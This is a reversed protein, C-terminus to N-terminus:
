FRTGMKPRQLHHQPGVCAWAAVECSEFGKCLRLSYDICNSNFSTMRSEESGNVSMVM